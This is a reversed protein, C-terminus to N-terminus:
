GMIMSPSISCKDIDFDKGNWIAEASEARYTDGQNWVGGIYDEILDTLKVREGIEIDDPVLYAAYPLEWHYPYYKIWDLGGEGGMICSRFDGHAEIENTVPNKTVAVKSYIDPHPKLEKLLPIFGCKAANNIAEVSRGTQIDRM